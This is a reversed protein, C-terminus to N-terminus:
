CPLKSGAVAWQCGSALAGGLAAAAYSHDVILEPAVHKLWSCGVQTQITVISWGRVGSRM